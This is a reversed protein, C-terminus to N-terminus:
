LLVWGVFYLLLPAVVAFVAAFAASRCRRSLRRAVAAIAAIIPSCYLSLFMIDGDNPHGTLHLHLVYDVTNLVLLGPLYALWFAVWFPWQRQKAPWPTEYEIPQVGAAFPPTDIVPRAGPTSSDKALDM